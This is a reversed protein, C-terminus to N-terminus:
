FLPTEIFNSRHCMLSLEATKKKELKFFSYPLGGEGERRGALQVGSVEGSM